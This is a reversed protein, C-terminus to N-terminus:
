ASARLKSGMLRNLWLREKKLEFGVREGGDIISLYVKKLIEIEHDIQDTGIAEEIAEYVSLLDPTTVVKPLKTMDLGLTSQPKFGVLNETLLIKNSNRFNIQLFLKSELDQRHLIESIDELKFAFVKDDASQIIKLQGSEIGLSKLGQSCDIFHLISDLDEKTSKMRM